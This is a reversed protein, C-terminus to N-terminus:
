NKKLMESVLREPWSSRLAFTSWRFEKVPLNLLTKTLSMVKLHSLNWNCAINRILQIFKSINNVEQSVLKEDVIHHILNIWRMTNIHFSVFWPRMLTSIREEWAIIWGFPEFCEAFIVFWCFLVGGEWKDIQYAFLFWSEIQIFMWKGLFFSPNEWRKKQM